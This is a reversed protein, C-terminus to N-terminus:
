ISFLVATLSVAVLVDLAVSAARTKAPASDFFLALKKRKKPNFHMFLTAAAIILIKIVIILANLPTDM